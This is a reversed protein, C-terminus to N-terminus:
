SRADDLILAVIFREDPLVWNLVEVKTRLQDDVFTLLRDEEAVPLREVEKARAAVRQLRLLQWKQLLEVLERGVGLAREM